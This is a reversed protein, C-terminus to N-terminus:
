PLDCALRQIKIVVNSIGTGHHKYDLYVNLM